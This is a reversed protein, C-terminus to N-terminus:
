EDQATWYCHAAPCFTRDTECAGCPPLIHCTCGEVPGTRLEGACMEGASNVRNCLDGEEVGFEDDTLRIALVNIRAEGFHKHKIEAKVYGLYPLDISTSTYGRRLRLRKYEVGVLRRQWYANDKRLEFKKSGDQVADFYEYKLVIDLTDSKM